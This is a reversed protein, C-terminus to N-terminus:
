EDLVSHKILVRKHQKDGNNDKFQSDDNQLSVYNNKSHNILPKKDNEKDKIKSLSLCVLTSGM